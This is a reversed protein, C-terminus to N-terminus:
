QAVEEDGDVEKFVLREEDRLDVYAIERDLLGYAAHLSALDRVARSFSHEPFKVDGGNRLRMNWRRDGVRILAAARGWLDSERRLATLIGAASEPAGAGVILPLNSYEYVDVERIVAGNVDILHLAGSMQWVAAPERERISVHVTDPWLRSVAAVRVWGIEEVRARAAHPDLHLLSAGIVPGVAALIEERSTHNLGKATIRDTQFGVGIVSARMMRDVREGILGFYGASWLAAAGIVAAVTVGAGVAVATRGAVIQLASFPPRASPTKKNTKRAKTATKKKKVKPM